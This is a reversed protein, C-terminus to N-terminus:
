NETGTAKFELVEGDQAHKQAEEFMADANSQTARQMNEKDESTYINLTMAANKHGMLVSVTKVDKGDHIQKTAFTHRLDHLTPRKGNTTGKLNLRIATDRWRHTLMDGNMPSGDEFGIVFFDRYDMGQALAQKRAEKKRTELPEILQDPISLTRASDETKPEKLFWHNAGTAENDRGLSYVVRVTKHKLDVYRWMLGCIEGSRMGLFLALAFGMEAPETLRTKIDNILLARGQEDLANPNKKELEPTNVTRCPDKLIIDREVAQRMAARFVVFAKRITKPAYGKEILSTVWTDVLDPSLEDLRYNGLFPAIHRRLHLYYDSKTRRGAKKNQKIYKTVYEEVTPKQNKIAEAAELKKREEELKKREAEAEEDLLEQAWTRLIEELAKASPEKSNDPRYTKSKAKWKGSEDKYNLFLRYTNAGTKQMNGSTYKGCDQLRMVRKKTKKEAEAKITM